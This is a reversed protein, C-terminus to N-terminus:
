HVTANAPIETRDTSRPRVMARLTWPGPIPPQRRPGKVVVMETSKPTLRGVLFTTRM